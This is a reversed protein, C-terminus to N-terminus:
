NLVRQMQLGSREFAQSNKYLDFGVNLAPDHGSM